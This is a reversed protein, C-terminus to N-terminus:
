YSKDWNEGEIKSIFYNRLKYNNNGGVGYAAGMRIMRIGVTPLYILKLHTMREALKRDKFNYIDYGILHLPTLMIQFGVPLAFQTVKRATNKDVGNDAMISALRSPLVFAGAMTLVDRLLWFGMSVIGVKNSVKKGYYYAFARDKFVSATMNVATVGVLKPIVDSQHNVKCISDISNATMYTSGYVFLIWIFERSTFFKLPNKLLSLSTEKISASITKTGATNQVVAKDVAMIIPAATFAALLGSICDLGIRKMLRTHRDPGNWASESVPKSQSM